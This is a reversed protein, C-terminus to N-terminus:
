HPTVSPFPHFCASFRDSTNKLQLQSVSTLAKSEHRKLGETLITNINLTARRLLDFLLDPALYLHICVLFHTARDKRFFSKINSSKCPTLYVSIVLGMLLYRLM